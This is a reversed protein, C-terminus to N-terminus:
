VLRVTADSDDWLFEFHLGELLMGVGYGLHILFYLCPYILLYKWSTRRSDLASSIMSALFYTGGFVLFLWRLAPPAWYLLPTALIGLVFLPPIAYRLSFFDHHKRIVRVRARGYHIQQRFLGRMTDRPFYYFCIAPTMFIRFGGKIIRWHFEDDEGGLIKDDFLGFHEFAGKLYSANQVTKLFGEKQTDRYGVNGVAFPSNMAKGIARSWFGEGIMRVPGGLAMVQQDRLLWFHLNVKELYDNAPFSHGGDIRAIIEGRSEQICRNLRMRKSTGPLEWLRIQIEPHEAMYQRILALTGDSSGGDSILVEFLDRPYTQVYLQHLFEGVHNRDNLVPAIVSIFRKAEPLSSSDVPKDGTQPLMDRETTALLLQERTKDVM